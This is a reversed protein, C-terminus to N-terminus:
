TRNLRMDNVATVEHFSLDKTANEMGIIASSFKRIIDYMDIKMDRM